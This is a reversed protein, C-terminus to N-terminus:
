FLNEIQIILRNVSLDSTHYDVFNYEDEFNKLLAMTYTIRTSLWLVREPDYKDM